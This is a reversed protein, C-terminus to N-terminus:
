NENNYVSNHFSHISSNNRHHSQSNTTNKSKNTSKPFTMMKSKSWITHVIISYCASIIIAPFFFLSVAVLTIYIRWQWQELDIWCQPRGEIMAEENLFIAPISFVASLAWSSAV